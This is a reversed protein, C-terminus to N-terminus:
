NQSGDDPRFDICRPGCDQCPCVIGAPMGHGRGCKFHRRGAPRGMQAIASLQLEDGLFICAAPPIMSTSDQMPAADVAARYKASTHYIRCLECHDPGMPRDHGPIGNM